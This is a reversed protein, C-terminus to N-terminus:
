EKGGRGEYLLAYAKCEATIQELSIEDNSKFFPCSKGGFDNDTLSVCKGNKNAFCDWHDLCM